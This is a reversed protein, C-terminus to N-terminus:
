AAEAWRILAECARAMGRRYLLESLARAAAKARPGRLAELSALVAQAEDLGVDGVERCYRGHWRLAAREFRSPDLEAILLVLELAETLGVAELERAATLAETTNRHDLARRLRTYRLGASDRVLTRM